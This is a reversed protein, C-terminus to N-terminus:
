VRWPGIVDTVGLLESPVTLPKGSGFLVGSIATLSIFQEGVFKPPVPANFSHPGATWQGDAEHFSVWVSIDNPLYFNNPDTGKIGDFTLKGKLILSGDHLWFAAPLDIAGTLPVTSPPSTWEPQGADIMALRRAADVFPPASPGATPVTTPLWDLLQDVTFHAATTQEPLDVVRWTASYGTTPASVDEGVLMKKGSPSLFPGRDPPIFQGLVQVDHKHWRRLRCVYWTYDLGGLSAKVLFLTPVGKFTRILREAAAIIAATLVFTAFARVPSLKAGQSALTM